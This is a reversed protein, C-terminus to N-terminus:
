LFSHIFRNEDKEHRIEGVKNIKLIYVFFLSLRYEEKVFYDFM